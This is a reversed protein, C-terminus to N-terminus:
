SPIHFTEKKLKNQYMKIMYLYSGNEETSNIHLLGLHITM